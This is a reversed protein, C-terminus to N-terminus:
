KSLFSSLGYYCVVLSSGPLFPSTSSVMCTWVGEKNIPNGWFDNWWLNAWPTWPKVDPNKQIAETDDYVLGGYLGNSYALFSIIPILMWIPVVLTGSKHDLYWNKLGEVIDMMFLSIPDCGELKKAKSGKRNKKTGKSRRVPQPAERSPAEM